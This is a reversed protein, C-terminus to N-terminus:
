NKKKESESDSETQTIFNEKLKVMGVWIGLGIFIALLLFVSFIVKPDKWPPKPLNTPTLLSESSSTSSTSASTALLSNDPM